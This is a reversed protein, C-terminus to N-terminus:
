KSDYTNNTSYASDSFFPDQAAAQAPRYKLKLFEEFQKNYMTEMESSYGTVMQPLIENYYNLAEETESQSLSVTRLKKSIDYLRMQSVSYRGTRKFYYGWVLGSNEVIHVKSGDIWMTFRKGIWLRKGIKRAGAFDSELTGLSLSADDHLLKTISKKYSTTCMGIFTIIFAVLAVLAVVMLIWFTSFSVGGIVSSDVGYFRIIDYEGEAIGMEELSEEYYQKQLGTLEVWSGKMTVPEPPAVTYTEDMLYNWAEDIKQYLEDRKNYPAYASYFYWIASGKEYDDISNFVIYSDGDIRTTSAKTKSNTTTTSHEVYDTLFFDTDLTVYKGVYTAPDATVDVKTGGTLVEFIAFKTVVLIGVVIILSLVIKIVYSKMAEKKLTELM